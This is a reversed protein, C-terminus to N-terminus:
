EGSGPDDPLTTVDDGGPIFYVDYLYSNGATAPEWRAWPVQVPRVKGDTPLPTGATVYHGGAPVANGTRKRGLNVWDGSSNQYQARGGSFRFQKGGTDAGEVSDLADRGDGGEVTSSNRWASTEGNHTFRVQLQNQTGILQTEVTVRPNSRGNGYKGASDAHAAGALLLLALLYKM